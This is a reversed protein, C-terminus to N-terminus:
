LVSAQRRQTGYVGAGVWGGRWQMGGLIHGRVCQREQGVLCFFFDQCGHRVRLHTRVADSENHSRRTGPTHELKAFFKCVLRRLSLRVGAASEVSPCSNRRRRPRVFVRRHRKTRTRTPTRPQVCHTLRQYRAADTMHAPTQTHTGTHTETHAHTHAHTCASRGTRRRRRLHGRRAVELDVGVLAGVAQM